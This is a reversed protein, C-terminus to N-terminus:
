SSNAQLTKVVKNWDKLKEKQGDEKIKKAM